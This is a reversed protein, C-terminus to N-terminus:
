QCKKLEVYFRTTLRGGPNTVEVVGAKAMAAIYHRAAGRSSGIADAIATIGHCGSEIAKIIAPQVASLTENDKSSKRLCETSMKHVTKKGCPMIIKERTLLALLQSM